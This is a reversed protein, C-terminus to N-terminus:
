DAADSAAREAMRATLEGTTEPNTLLVSEPVYRHGRTWAIRRGSSARETNRIPHDLQLTRPDDPSTLLFIQEVPGPHQDNMAREVITAFRADVPDGTSRWARATQATLAVHDRRALIAPLEPRIAGHAYYGLREVDPRFRRGAQCIYATFRGSDDRAAFRTFCDYAWDSGAVILVDRDDEGAM